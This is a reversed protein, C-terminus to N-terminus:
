HEWQINTYIEGEARKSRCIGHNYQVTDYLM